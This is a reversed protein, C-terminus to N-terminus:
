QMRRRYRRARQGEKRNVNEVSAAEMLEFVQELNEARQLHWFYLQQKVSPVAPDRSRNLNHSSLSNSLRNVYNQQLTASALPNILFLLSAKM